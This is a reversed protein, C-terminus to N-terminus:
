DEVPEEEEDDEANENKEHEHEAHCSWIAMTIMRRQMRQTMMMMIM